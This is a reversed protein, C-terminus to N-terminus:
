REGTATRENDRSSKRSGEAFWLVMLVFVCMMMPTRLPYDSLSAVAMMLIAVGAMRAIAVSRSDPTRRFWVVITQRVYLLGGLVVLAMGPLGFTIAIEIYDNHAHNLYYPNLLHTPEVIQFVEVFSGSGSGVPFYKWFLEVCVAWFDLRVDDLSGEFLRRVSEARSFYVAILTILVAALVTIALMWYSRAKVARNRLDLGRSATGYILFAGALGILSILLGSRSGTVLVLTFLVVAVSGAALLEIRRTKQVGERLSVWAALMPFSLTLFLAAHNRNSFLGVASGSNTIKYLYLPNSPGGIVQLLGFLGSLGSLAILVPLLRYLDNRNLQAAFLLTALPTFLATLAHWGNMPTLTLPRWIAGFGLLHDIQVLERRGPFNHWISPPLPILHLLSLSFM